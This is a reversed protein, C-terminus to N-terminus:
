PNLHIHAQIVQGQRAIGARKRPAFALADPEGGLDARAEGAHEIHQVLRRDAQVLAVVVAQQLRQGAQAVEAVRHQHDLVVLVRDAGGVMHDVQAGSGAHVAPADDAQLLKQMKDIRSTVQPYQSKPFAPDPSVNADANKKWSGKTNMVGDDNCPQQAIVTNTVFLLISGILLHVPLSSIKIDIAIKTYFHM